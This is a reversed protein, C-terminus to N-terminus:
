NLNVPLNIKILEAMFQAARRSNYPKIQHLSQLKTFLPIYILLAQQPTNLLSFPPM